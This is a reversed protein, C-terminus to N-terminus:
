VREIKVVVSQSQTALACMLFSHWIMCQLIGESYNFLMWETQNSCHLHKNNRINGYMNACLRHGLCMVSYLTIIILYIQIHLLIRIHPIHPMYSAVYWKRNHWTLRIFEVIRCRCATLCQSHSAFHQHQKSSDSGSQHGRIVFAPLPSRHWLPPSHISPAPKSNVHWHAGPLCKQHFNTRNNLGYVRWWYVVSGVCVHVAFQCVYDRFITIGGIVCRMASVLDFIGDDM